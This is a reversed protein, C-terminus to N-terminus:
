YNHRVARQGLAASVFNTQGDGIVAVRQPASMRSHEASLLDMTCVHRLVDMDLARAQGRTYKVASKYAPSSFAAHGIGWCVGNCFRIFRKIFPRAGRRHASGQFEVSKVMM